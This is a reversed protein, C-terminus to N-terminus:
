VVSTGKLSAFAKGLVWTKGKKAILGESVLQSIAPSESDWRDLEVPGFALLYGLYVKMLEEKTM